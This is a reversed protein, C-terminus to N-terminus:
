LKERLEERRWDSINALAEDLTPFPGVVTASTYCSCGGAEGAWYGDDNKALIHVDTDYSGSEDSFALTICDTPLTVLDGSFNGDDLSNFYEVDKDM